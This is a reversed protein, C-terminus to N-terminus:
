EEFYICYFIRSCRVVDVIRPYPFKIESSVHRPKCCVPQSFRRYEQVKVTYKVFDDVIIRLSPIFPLSLQQIGHM